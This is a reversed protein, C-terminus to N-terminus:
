NDVQEATNQRKLGLLIRRTQRLKSIRNKYAEIKRETDAIADDWVKARIEKNIEKDMEEHLKTDMEDKYSM